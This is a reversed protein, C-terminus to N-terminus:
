EGEANDEGSESHSEKGEEHPRGAADTTLDKLPLM